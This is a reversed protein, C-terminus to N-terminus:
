SEGCVLHYPVFVGSLPPLTAFVITGSAWLFFFLLRPVGGEGRGSVARYQRRAVAPSDDMGVVFFAFLGKSDLYSLLSFSSWADTYTDLHM